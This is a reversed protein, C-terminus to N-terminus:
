PGFLHWPRQHAAAGAGWLAETTQQEEPLVGKVDESVRRRVENTFDRRNEKVADYYRKDLNMELFPIDFFLSPM